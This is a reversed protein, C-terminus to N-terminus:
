STTIQWRMYDHESNHYVSVLKKIINEFLIPNIKFLDQTRCGPFVYDIDKIDKCYTFKQALAFKRIADPNEYFNDVVAHPYLKM